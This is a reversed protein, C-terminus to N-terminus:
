KRPRFVPERRGVIVRTRERTMRVRCGLPDLVGGCTRDRVGIFAVQDPNLMWATANTKYGTEDMYYAAAMDDDAADANMQECDSDSSGYNGNAPACFDEDHLLVIKRNVDGIFYRTTVTPVGWGMQWDALDAQFAQPLQGLSITDTKIQKTWVTMAPAPEGNTPWFVFGGLVTGEQMDVWVFGEGRLGPFVSSRGTVIVYRGDRIRVPARSGSIANDMAESLPRDNGFHYMVGPIEGRVFHKFQKDSWLDGCSVGDFQKLFALDASPVTRQFIAPDYQAMPPMVYQPQVPAAPEQAPDKAADNASTRREIPAPRVSQTDPAEQGQAAGCVMVAAMVMLAQM